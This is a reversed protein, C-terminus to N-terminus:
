TVEEEGVELKFVKGLLRHVGVVLLEALVAADDLFAAESIALELAHDATDALEFGLYFRGRQFREAVAVLAGGSGRRHRERRVPGHM